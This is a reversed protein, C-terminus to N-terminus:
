RFQSTSYVRVELEERELGTGAQSQKMERLNKEYGQVITTGTYSPGNEPINIM